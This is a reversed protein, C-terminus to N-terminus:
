VRNMLLAQKLLTLDIADLKADQNIDGAQRDALAANPECCLWKGVLVADEHDVTGDANVDGALRVPQTREFPIVASGKLKGSDKAAAIVAYSQETDPDNVYAVTFDVGWEAATEAGTEPDTILVTVAPAAPNDNELATRVPAGNVGSLTDLAFSATHGCDACKLTISGAADGNPNQMRVFAYNHKAM